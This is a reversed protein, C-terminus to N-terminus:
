QEDHEKCKVTLIVFISGDKNHIIIDSGVETDRIAQMVAEAKSPHTTDTMVEVDYEM